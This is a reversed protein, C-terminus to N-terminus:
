NKKFYYQLDSSAIDWDGLDLSSCQHCLTPSDYGKEEWLADAAEEFEEPTDIEIHGICVSATTEIYVPIKM